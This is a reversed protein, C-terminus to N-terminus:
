GIQITRWTGDGDIAFARGNQEFEARVSASPLTCFDALGPIGLLASPTKATKSEAAEPYLNRTTQLDLALSEHEASPGIFGYNGAM